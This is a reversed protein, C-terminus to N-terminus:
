TAQAYSYKQCPPFLLFRYDRLRRACRLSPLWMRSIHFAIFFCHCRRGHTGANTLEASVLRNRSIKDGKSVARATISSSDILRLLNTSFRSQRRAFASLSTPWNGLRSIAPFGADVVVVSWLHKFKSSSSILIRWVSSCNPIERISPFAVARAFSM